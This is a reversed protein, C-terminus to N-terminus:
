AHIPAQDPSTRVQPKTPQEDFSEAFQRRRARSDLLDQGHETMLIGTTIEASSEATAALRASGEVHKPQEGQRRLARYADRDKDLQPDKVAARAAGPNRTPMASPAFSVSELRCGFCSDVCVGNEKLHTVRAM